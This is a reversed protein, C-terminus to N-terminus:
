LDSDALKESQTVEIFRLRGKMVVLTVEGYEGVDQLAQDIRDVAEPSLFKLTGHRDPSVFADVPRKIM